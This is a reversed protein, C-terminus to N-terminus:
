TKLDDDTEQASYKQDLGCIILSTTKESSLTYTFFKAKNEILLNNTATCDEKFKSLIQHNSGRSKKILFDKTVANSIIVQTVRFNDAREVIVVSPIRTSM